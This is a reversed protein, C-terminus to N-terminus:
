TVDAEKVTTEIASLQYNDTSFNPLVDGAFMEDSIKGEKLAGGLVVLQPPEGPLTLMFREQWKSKEKNISRDWVNIGIKPMRLEIAFKKLEVSPSPQFDHIDSVYSRPQFTAPSAGRVIDVLNRFKEDKEYTSSATEKLGATVEKPLPQDQVFQQKIETLPINKPTNSNYFCLGAMGLVLASLTLAPRSSSAM